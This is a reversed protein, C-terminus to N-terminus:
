KEDIGIKYEKIIQSDMLGEDLNPDISLIRVIERNFQRNEANITSIEETLAQNQNWLYFVAACLLLTSFAEKKLKELIAEGM